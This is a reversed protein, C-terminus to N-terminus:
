NDICPCSGAKCSRACKCSMLSLVIDPAPAGTIWEIGIQLDGEVKWGHGDTASPITPSNELSRRWIAAQCNARKTHQKLADKCPPLQGSSVDGNRSRFIEYRLDNVTKSNASRSYMSCAFRELTSFLDDAVSWVRGLLSLAEQFTDNSRILNVAKIKGQGSFASVSDCGTWAHMGLLATCVDRGIITALRSIDIIRIKNKKGRRLLLHGGIEAELALLMVFVDTDESIVIVHSHTGTAHKAHLALRTDAEEQSSALEPVERVDDKTIEFCQEAVTVILTIEGLSQRVEEKKWSEALFRTLRNKSETNALLHKWNKIRHGSKMDRFLLSDKAGRSVREANKISHETYVDFVVDIRQSKCGHHLISKLIQQSLERFTCNEAHIKQVIGMADIIAAMPGTPLDVFAAQKELCSSLTTKATKKVTGDANVLAWPKPGLPYCLVYRMDLKRSQAILLMNGFLRNDAKLVIEKDKAKVVTGKKLSSFTKM